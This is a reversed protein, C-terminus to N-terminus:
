AAPESEVQAERARSLIAQLNHLGDNEEVIAEAARSGVIMAEAEVSAVTM